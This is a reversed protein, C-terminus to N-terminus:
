VASGACGFIEVAVRAYAGVSALPPYSTLARQKRGFAGTRTLLKMKRTIIKHLVKQLAEDTPAPVEVFVLEGEPNCRYV